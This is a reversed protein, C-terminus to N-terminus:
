DHPGVGKTLRFRRFPRSEDVPLPVEVPPHDEGLTRVPPVTGLAEWGSGSLDSTEIRYVGGEPGLIRLVPLGDAGLGMAMRTAEAAKAESGAGSGVSGVVIRFNGQVRAVGDSVSVRVANTSNALAAPPTWELLGNTSVTLGEPGIELRYSLAQVPIDADTARLAVSLRGTAAVTLNSVVLVPAQNAERVTVVFNTTTGLPTLADDVVRVTVLNTSPGQDETPNWVLQGTESVTMGRPGSVLAYTLRQAPLDADRGVLTFNLGVNELISRSFANVVTPATNAETVFITFSATTSLSPSGGDSVRVTVTNTGPGQEETPTWNVLGDEAVTLGAPGDVLAYSLRQAPLDTDRGTLRFSTLSLERIRRNVLNVFSPAVNVEAVIVTFANTAALAPVGDDVVRVTVRNTSPGQAETPRFSVVGSPSVTLGAPGSMLSFTLRQAPVDADSASLTFSLNGTEAVRRLPVDAIV